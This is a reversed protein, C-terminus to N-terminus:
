DKKKGQEAALEGAAILASVSHQVTDIRIEDSASSSRFGGAVRGPQPFRAAADATFQLELLAEVARGVAAEVENSTAREGASELLPHAACLGEVRTAIHNAAAANEADDESEEDTPVAVNADVIARTILLAHGVYAPEPRDRYLEDLAYLLWHDHAITAATKDADRVRILWEAGRHARAMWPGTPDLPHIRCLALIAEGPYYGSIFDSRQGDAYRQKHGVFQGEEDQNLLMWRGLQLVVPTPRTDGTARTYEALAIAALANGGLKVYGEEVVCATGKAPGPKVQALLYAAAREAAALLQPDRHIAYLEMMAYVTGAHRLINYRGSDLDPVPDYEYTFRGDAGCAQVFYAGALRLANGYPHADLESAVPAAPHTAPGAAESRTTAAPQTEGHAPREPATSRCSTLCLLVVVVIGSVLCRAM